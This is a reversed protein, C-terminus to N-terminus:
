IKHALIIYVSAALLGTLSGALVLIGRSHQSPKVPKGADEAIAFNLGSFIGRSESLWQQMDKGSNEM